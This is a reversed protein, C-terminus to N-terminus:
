KIELLQGLRDAIEESASPSLHLGDPVIEKLSLKKGKVVLFGDRVIQRYLADLGLIHCTPERCVDSIAANIKDRCPQRGPLLPPVDGIVWTKPSEQLARAFARLAGVSSACRQADTADWFMLDVAIVLSSKKLQGPDLSALIERGTKGPEAHVHINALDTFRLSLIKGPSLTKYDASVSAGIVLPASFLENGTAGGSTAAPASLAFIMGPIVLITKFKPTM